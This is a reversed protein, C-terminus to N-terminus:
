SYNRNSRFVVETPEAVLYDESCGTFTVAAIFLILKINKMKNIKKFNFNLRLDSLSQQCQRIDTLILSRIYIFFNFGDRQSLLFCIDGSVYFDLGTMNVSKLVDQPM